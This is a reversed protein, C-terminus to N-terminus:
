EDALVLLQGGDASEKVSYGLQVLLGSVAAHVIVQLGGSASPQGKALSAFGDSAAWRVLVGAPVATVVLGPGSDEGAEGVVQFGVQVM